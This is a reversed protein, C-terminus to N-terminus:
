RSGFPYNLGFSLRLPAKGESFTWRAEFFPKVPTDFFPGFDIGPFVNMGFKTDSGPSKIAAVGGGVYFAGKRGLAIFDVNGQYTTVGLVTSAEVSPAFQLSWDVPIRVQVGYNWIRAAADYGGRVGILPGANRDVQAQTPRRDQQAGATMPLAGALTALSCAAALAGTRFNRTM